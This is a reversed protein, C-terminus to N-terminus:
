SDLKEVDQYLERENHPSNRQGTTGASRVDHWKAHEPRRNSPRLRPAYLRQRTSWVADFEPRGPVPTPAQTHKSRSKNKPMLTLSRESQKVDYSPTNYFTLLNTLVDIIIYILGFWIVSASAFCWLKYGRKIPKLTSRGKFIIMSEDVALERTGNYLCPFQENPFKVLPRIKYINDRSLM